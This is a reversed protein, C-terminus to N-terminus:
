ADLPRPPLEDEIAIAISTAEQPGIWIPLVSGEGPEELIPKLLVMHQMASDLAVGLVRVQKM